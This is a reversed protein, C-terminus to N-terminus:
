DLADEMGGCFVVDNGLANFAAYLDIDAVFLELACILLSDFEFGGIVSM